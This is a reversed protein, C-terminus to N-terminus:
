NSRSFKYFAFTSVLFFDVLMFIKYGTSFQPQFPVYLLATWFLWQTFKSFIHWRKRYKGEMVGSKKYERSLIYFDAIFVFGSAVGFMIAYMAGRGFSLVAILAVTFLVGWILRLKKNFIM